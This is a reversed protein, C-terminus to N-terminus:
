FYLKPAPTYGDNKSVSGSPKWAARKQQLEKLKNKEILALARTSVKGIEFSQNHKSEVSSDRTLKSTRNKRRGIRLDRSKKSLGTHSSKEIEPLL